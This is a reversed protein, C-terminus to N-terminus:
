IVVDLIGKHIFHMIFEKFFNTNCSQSMSSIVFQIIHSNFFSEVTRVEFEHLIYEGPKMGSDLRLGSISTDNNIEIYFDNKWSSM